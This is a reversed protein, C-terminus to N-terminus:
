KCLGSAPSIVKFDEYTTGDSDDNVQLRAGGTFANCAVRVNRFPVRRPSFALATFRRGMVGNEWVPTFTNREFVMSEPSRGDFGEGAWVPHQVFINYFECNSFVNDRITVNRGGFIIICEFHEGSNPVIRYDHFRAGQVLINEGADVDIKSNSCTQSPVTCPGWDGGHITVNSSLDIYFNAADLDRFTVDNAGVIDFAGQPERADKVGRITVHSPGKGPEAREGLELGQVTVVADAAPRLVVDVSSTKSADRRMKQLGYDGAALEVVQGPKAKAYGRQFSKCPARKSCPGADNGGPALFVAAPTLPSLGATLRLDGAVEVLFRGFSSGLAPKADGKLWYGKLKPSEARNDRAWTKYVPTKTLRAWHRAPTEASPRAVGVLFRGFSTRALPPTGGELWYTRVAAAEAESASAWKVYSPTKALRAWQRSPIETSAGAGAIAAVVLVCVLVAISSMVRLM